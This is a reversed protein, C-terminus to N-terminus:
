LRIYWAVRIRLPLGGNAESPVKLQANADALGHHHASGASSIVTGAAVGFFPNTPPDQNVDGLNSSPLPVPHTHASEDETIAGAEWTARTAAQQTGTATWGILFPGGTLPPTVVSRTTGDGNSVTVTSGDCLAYFPLVGSTISAQAVVYGSGPDGPAFQFALASETWRLSHGYTTDFFILGDDYPGLDTPVSSLAATYQGSIYQWKGSSVTYAKNTQVGASTTITLAVASSNLHDVQYAIGNIVIGSASGLKGWYPNFLDGSVWTVTTGSTSVVGTADETVYLLTRDLEVFFSGVVYSSPPYASFWYFTGGAGISTDIDIISASTFTVVKYLLFGVAIYKGVMSAHFGTGTTATITTGAVTCAGVAQRDSHLGELTTIVRQQPTPYPTRNLNLQLLGAIEENQSLNPLAPLSFGQVAAADVEVVARVVPKAQAFAQAAGLTNEASGQNQPRPAVAISEQANISESAVTWLGILWRWFSVWDALTTPGPNQPGFKPPRAIKVPDGPM